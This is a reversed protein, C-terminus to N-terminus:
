FLTQGERHTIIGKSGAVKKNGVVKETWGKMTQEMRRREREHRQETESM